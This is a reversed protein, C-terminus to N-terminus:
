VTNCRHFNKLSEPNRRLSQFAQNGAVRGGAFWKTPALVVRSWDRSWQIRCETSAGPGRVRLSSASQPPSCLCRLALVVCLYFARKNPFSSSIVIRCQMKCHKKEQLFFVSDKGRELPLLRQARGFIKAGFACKRERAGSFDRTDALIDRKM